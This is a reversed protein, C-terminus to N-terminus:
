RLLERVYLNASSDFALAGPTNVGQSITRLVSTSGPAYTTVAGEHEPGGKENAVYLNGSRDFALALPVKVGQSITRLVSTSGSGYVTITDNSGNAVYLNAIASAKPNSPSLGNITASCAALFVFTLGAGVRNRLSKM